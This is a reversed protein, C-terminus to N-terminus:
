SLATKMKANSFPKPTFSPVISQIIQEIKRLGCFELINIWDCTKPLKLKLNIVSCDFDMPPITIFDMKGYESM